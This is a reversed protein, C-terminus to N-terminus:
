IIAAIRVSSLLGMFEFIPKVILDWLGRLFSEYFPVSMLKPRTGRGEEREGNDVQLQVSGRALSNAQKLGKTLKKISISTLDPLFVSNVGKPTIVLAAYTSNTGMLVIVPGGVSAQLLDEYEKPQLLNEFGPIERAKSLLYNFESELLFQCRMDEESVSEVSQSKCSDLKHATDELDRALDEPLGDFTAQLRLLRTWFHTRSSEILELCREPGRSLLAQLPAMRALEPSSGHKMGAIRTSLRVERPDMYVVRSLQRVVSESLYSMGSEFSHFKDEISRMLARITRQELPMEFFEHGEDDLVKEIGPFVVSRKVSHTKLYSQSSPPSAMLDIPWAPIQLMGSYEFALRSPASKEHYSVKTPHYRLDCNDSYCSPEDKKTTRTAQYKFIMIPVEGFRPADTSISNPQALFTIAQMLGKKNKRYCSRLNDENQLNDELQLHLSRRYMEASLELYGRNRCIDLGISRWMDSVHFLFLTESSRVEDVGGGSFFGLLRTSTINKALNLSESKTDDLGNIYLHLGDMLLKLADIWEEFELSRSLHLLATVAMMELVSIFFPRGIPLSDWLDITQTLLEESDAFYRLRNHLIRGLIVVKRAEAFWSEEGRSEVAERFLELSLALFSIGRPQSLFGIFSNMALEVIGAFHMSTGRKQARLFQEILASSVGTEYHRLYGVLRHLLQTYGPECELEVNLMQIAARKWVAPSQGTQTLLYAIVGPSKKWVTVTISEAYPTNELHRSRKFLRDLESPHDSFYKLDDPSLTNCLGQLHEFFDYHTLGESFETNFINAGLM